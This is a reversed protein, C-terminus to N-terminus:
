KQTSILVKLNEAKASAGIAQNAAREAADITM